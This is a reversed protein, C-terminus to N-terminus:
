LFFSARVPLWVVDGYGWTRSERIVDLSEAHLPDAPDYGVTFRDGVQPIRHHTRVVVWNEGVQEPHTRIGCRVRM